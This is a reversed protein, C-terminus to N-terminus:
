RKEIISYSGLCLGTTTYWEIRDTHLRIVLFAQHHDIHSMLEDSSVTYFIGQGQNSQMMFDVTESWIRPSQAQVPYIFEEGICQGKEVYGSSAMFIPLKPSGKKFSFLCLEPDFAIWIDPSHKNRDPIAKKGPHEPDNGHASCHMENQEPPNYGPQHIRAARAHRLVEKVKSVEFSVVVFEDHGPMNANAEEDYKEFGM